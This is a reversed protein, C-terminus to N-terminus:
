HNGKKIFKKMRSYVWEEADKMKFWVGERAFLLTIIILGSVFLIFYERFLDTLYTRLLVIIAAGIIPGPITALGGIIVAFLPLINYFEIDFITSPEIWNLGYAHIGAAAAIFYGSIFFIVLKYRSINIGVASAADQDDRIAQLRLGYRSKMFFYLVGFCCAFIILQAYYLITSSPFEGQPIPFAFGSGGGTISRLNLILYFVTSAGLFSLISFYVGRRRFCPYLIIVWVLSTVFATLPLGLFPSLGTWSMFLGSAYAGLGWIGHHGFLVQGGYGSVFNWSLAVTAIWFFFKVRRIYYASLFLPLILFIGILLTMLILFRRERSITGKFM